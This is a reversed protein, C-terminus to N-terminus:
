VRFYDGRWNKIGRKIEDPKSFKGDVTQRVLEPLEEDSAFRLAVIFSEPLASARAALDAPLLQHFRLREELRILRDQVRLPNIRVILLMLLLGFALLLQEAHDADPSQYLRVISWIFHILLIPFLIFHYLPHWRVHNSYNQTNESM